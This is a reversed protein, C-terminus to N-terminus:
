IVGSDLDDPFDDQAVSTGIYEDSHRIVERLMDHDSIEKMHAKDLPLKLKYALWRYALGRGMHGNKWIRDFSEHAQM